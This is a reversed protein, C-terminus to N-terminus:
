TILRPERSLPALRSTQVSVRLWTYPHNAQGEVPFENELCSVFRYVICFGIFILLSRVNSRMTSHPCDKGGCGGVLSVATACKWSCPGEIWRSGFLFRARAAAHPPACATSPWSPSACSGAKWARMPPCCGSACSCRRVRSEPGRRGALVGVFTEDHWSLGTM